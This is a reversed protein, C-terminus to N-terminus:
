SNSFGEVLMFLAAALRGFVQVFLGCRSRVKSANQIDTKEILWNNLSEIPQRHESVIESKLRDFFLLPLSKSKHKVPTLLNVGAEQPLSHVLAGKGYIKDAYLNGPPLRDSLDREFVTLDNESGSTVQIRVPFPMTDPRMAALIHIKLGHYYLDKTSCYGKGAVERAVKAEDCRPSVAMIVPFSDVVHGPGLGPHRLQYQTQLREILPPFVEAIRNLRVVFAVYSPLSPFWQRLHDKAYRYIKKKTNMGRIVGYIFITLIEEDTFEPKDNLSLRQCELILEERYHECISLFLRILEYEWTM